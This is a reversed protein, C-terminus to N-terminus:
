HRAKSADPSTMKVKHRKYTFGSRCETPAEVKSSLWGCCLCHATAITTSPSAGEWTLGSARPELCDVLSFEQSADANLNSTPMWGSVGKKVKVQRAAPTVRMESEERGAKVWKGEYQEVKASLLALVHRKQGEGCCSRRSSWGKLLQSRAFVVAM